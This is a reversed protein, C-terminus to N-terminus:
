RTSETEHNLQKLLVRIEHDLPMHCGFVHSVVRISAPVLPTIM